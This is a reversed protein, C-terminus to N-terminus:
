RSTSIAQTLKQLAKQWFSFNRLPHALLSRGLLMMAGARDGAHWALAGRELFFAAKLRQRQLFNARNLHATQIIALAAEVDAPRPRTICHVIALAEGLISIPLGAAECRLLWEWDELRQMDERFLGAIEFYVRHAVLTSGPSISCGWWIEPTCDRTTNLNRVVCSEEKCLRFGTCGASVPAITGLFSRQRALKDPTWEDDSDLFAIFEGRAARIGSNRAAAAGRREGHSIVRIHAYDPARLREATDDTSGDDVVIIETAPQTQRAVSDLARALLDARNFTPIVVAVTGRASALDQPNM